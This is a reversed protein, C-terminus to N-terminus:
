TCFIPGFNTGCIYVLYVEIKFSNRSGDTQSFHEWTYFLFQFFPRLAALGKATAWLKQILYKQVM